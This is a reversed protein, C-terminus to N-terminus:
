SGGFLARLADGVGGLESMASKVEDLTGTLPGTPDSLNPVSGLAELADLAGMASDLLGQAGDLLGADIDGLINSPPPPPPTEVLWLTYDIQDPREAAAQVHLSQVVVYQVETGTAIDSVFTLPDGAAYKDRMAQLFDQGETEGFVSGAIYIRAPQRNLDQYVNGARGPVDLEVLAREELTELRTVSPLEWDALMPILSM